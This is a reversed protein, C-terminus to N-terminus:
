GIIEKQFDEAKLENEDIVAKCNPCIYKKDGLYKIDIARQLSECNPCFARENLVEGLDVGYNGCLEDLLELTIDSSGKLVGCFIELADDATIKEQFDDARFFDMFQQRTIKAM